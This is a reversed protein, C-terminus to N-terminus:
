DNTCITGGLLDNLFGKPTVTTCNATGVFTAFVIDAGTLNAYEVNAGDV